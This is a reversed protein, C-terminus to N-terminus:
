EGDRHTWPESRDPDRGGSRVRREDPPTVLPNPSLASSKAPADRSEPQGPTFRTRCNARRHLRARVVCPLKMRVARNRMAGTVAAATARESPAQPEPPPPESSEVM